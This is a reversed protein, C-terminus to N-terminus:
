SFSVVISPGCFVNCFLNRAVPFITKFCLPFQESFSLRLDWIRELFSESLTKNLHQFPKSFTILPALFRLLPGFSHEKTRLDTEWVSVLTEAFMTYDAQLLFVGRSGKKFYQPQLFLRRFISRIQQLFSTEFHLKGKVQALM